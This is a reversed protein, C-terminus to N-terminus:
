GSFNNDVLTELNEHLVETDITTLIRELQDVAGGDGTMARGLLDSLDRGLAGHEVDEVHEGALALGAGLSRALLLGSRIREGADDSRLGVLMDAVRVLTPPKSPVAEIADPTFREGCRLVAWATIGRREWEGGGPPKTLYVDPEGGTAERHADTAVQRARNDGEMDQAVIWDLFYGAVYDAGKSPPLFYPDIPVQPDSLMRERLAEAILNTTWTKFGGQADARGTARVYKFLMVVAATPTMQRVADSTAGDIAAALRTIAQYDADDLRFNRQRKSM